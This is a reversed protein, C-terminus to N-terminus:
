RTLRECEDYLRAANAPNRAVEAVTLEAKGDGRFTGFAKGTISQTEPATALWLPTMAGQAPSKMFPRMFLGFWKMRGPLARMGETNVIGPWALNVVIGKDKLKQALEFTLMANCLKTQGYADWGDYKGQASELDDFHVETHNGGYFFIVRSPRAAELLPTLERTLLFPALTNCAFASEHGEGSVRREAPVVAASHILLKVASTRAKVEAVVKRAESLLSLDAVLSEAQGGAAKVLDLAAAARGPDRSVMLVRYGSKGLGLAVERGIGTSAGTVVALPASL